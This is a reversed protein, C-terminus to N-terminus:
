FSVHSDGVTPLSSFDETHGSDTIGASIMIAVSSQRHFIYKTKWNPEEAYALKVVKPLKKKNTWKTKSDPDEQSITDCSPFQKSSSNLHTTVVSNPFSFIRVASTMCGYSPDRPGM